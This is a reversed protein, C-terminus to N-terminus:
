RTRWFGSVVGSEFVRTKKEFGALAGNREKGEKWREGEGVDEGEFYTGSEVDM